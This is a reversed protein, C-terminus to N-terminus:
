KGKAILTKLTQFSVFTLTLSILTFILGPDENPMMFIDFISKGENQFFFVMALTAANNVTHAVISLWLNGTLLYLLGLVVGLVLRPLFATAEFHLVSFVVASILVVVVGSTCIRRVANQLIGRFFLEECVAPVIAVVFFSVVVGSVSQLDLMNSLLLANQQRGLSPDFINLQPLACIAENIYSCWQVLPQVLVIAAVAVFFRRWTSMPAAFVMRAKGNVMRGVLLAPVAFMLISSLLQGVNIIWYDGRAIGEACFVSLGLTTLVTAAFFVVIAACLAAIPNSTKQQNEM